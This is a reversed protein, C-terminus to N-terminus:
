GDAVPSRSCRTGRPPRPYDWCAVDAPHLRHRQEWAEGFDGEAAFVIFDVDSLGDAEGRALSGLLVVGLFPSNAAAEALEL